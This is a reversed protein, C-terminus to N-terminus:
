TGGAAAADPARLGRLPTFLCTAVTLALSGVGVISMAIRVDLRQAIAGALIAGVPASAVTLFRMTSITRGLLHDPTLQQRLALYPLILLMVGMDLIFLLAGYAIVSAMASGALRGPLVATLSFCATTAALGILITTGSGHRRMLPRILLASTLLGVGGMAHVLGLTGPTLGMSRTAFLVSLAMYGNFLLQWLAMSWALHRLLPHRWIYLLGDAMDRLLDRDNPAPLPDTVQIKRMAQISLVSCAATALLAFPATFVQILFGALGPGFLRAASETASFRAQAAVLADRGVVGTLLIQEASGGFVFGSGTLFAVAYLWPMSLLGAGYAGAISALGLASLWKSALLIPRKRRRDLLVGAPLGFLAFPLSQMAVLTGMQAPSAHLMLAACLPIAMGSIQGGFGNLASSLWFLRFDASGALPDRDLMRGLLSGRLWSM